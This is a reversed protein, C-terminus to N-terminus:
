PEASRALESRAARFKLLSDMDQVNLMKVDRSIDRMLGSLVKGPGVEVFIRRGERILKGMSDAWRVPRVIQEILTECIQAPEASYADATINAIVPLAPRALACAELALRMPKQADAMFRSHWPGSVKLPVTLRAGKRKALEAAKQLAETQGTLAVQLPSNHNAVEVSGIEKVEECITSLAAVDLGFVAVMGGPNREAAEQMATGRVHVLRMTDGFSLVGAAHLAAYEGLSHGATASPVVGEERLVQLCALNVLTIAPQVNNTQVLTPEPGEFCLRKLDKKILDSAEEFLTRVSRYADFFAKGMGVSHSGQGPFVFVVDTM